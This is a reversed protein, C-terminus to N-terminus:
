VLSRQTVIKRIKYSIFENKNILKGDSFIPLFENPTYGYRLTEITNKINKMVNNYYCLVDKRDLIISTLNRSTEDAAQLEHAFM